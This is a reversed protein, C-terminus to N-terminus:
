KGVWQSTFCESIWLCSTPLVGERGCYIGPFREPWENTAVSCFYRQILPSLRHFNCRVNGRFSSRCRRALNRAFSCQCETAQVRILVWTKLRCLLSVSMLVGASLRDCLTSEYLKLRCRSFIMFTHRTKRSIKFNYFNCEWQVRVPARMGFNCLLDVSVCVAALDYNVRCFKTFDKIEVSCGSCRTGQGTVARENQWLGVCHLLLEFVLSSFPFREGAERGLM